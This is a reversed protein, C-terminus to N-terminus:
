YDNNDHHNNHHHDDDGRNYVNIRLYPRDEDDDFWVKLRGGYYARAKYADGYVRFYTDWDRRDVDEDLYFKNDDYDLRFWDCDRHGLTTDDDDDDTWVDIDFEEHRDGDYIYKCVKVRLEDNPRSHSAFAAPAMTGAVLASACVAGLATRVLM